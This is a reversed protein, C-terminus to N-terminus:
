DDNDKAEQSKSFVTMRIFSGISLKLDEAMQVLEEYETPTLRITFNKNRIEKM